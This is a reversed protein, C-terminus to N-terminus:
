NTKAKEAPTGEEIRTLIMETEGADWVARGKLKTKSEAILEFKVGMMEYRLTDNKLIMSNSPVFNQGDFSMFVSDAKIVTTSKQYEDPAQPASTNWKGTFGNKTQAAGTGSALTIILISLVFTIVRPRM